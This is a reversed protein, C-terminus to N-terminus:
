IKVTLEVSYLEAEKDGLGYVKKVEVDEITTGTQQEFDQLKRLIEEELKRKLFKIGHVVSRTHAALAESKEKSTKAEQMMDSNTM